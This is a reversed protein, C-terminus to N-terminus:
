LGVPWWGGGGIVKRIQFTLRTDPFSWGHVDM